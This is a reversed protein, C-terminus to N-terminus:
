RVVTQSDFDAQIHSLSGLNTMLMRLSFETAFSAFLKPPCRSQLTPQARWFDQRSESRSQKMIAPAHLPFIPIATVAKWTQTESTGRAVRVPNIHPGVVSTSEM